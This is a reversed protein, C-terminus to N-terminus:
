IEDKINKEKKRQMTSGYKMKEMKHPFITNLVNFFFTRDAPGNHDELEPFMAMIKENDRLNLEAIVNEPKCEPFNPICCPIIDTTKYYPKKGAIIEKMYFTNTYNKKHNPLYIGM